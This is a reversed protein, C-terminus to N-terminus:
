QNNRISQIIKAEKKIKRRRNKECSATVYNEYEAKVILPLITLLHSIKGLDTMADDQSYEESNIAAQVLNGISTMGKTLGDIVDDSSSMLFQLDSDIMETIRENSVRVHKYINNM